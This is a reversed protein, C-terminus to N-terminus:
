RKRQFFLASMMSEQNQTCATECCQLICFLSWEWPWQQNQAWLHEPSNKHSLSRLIKGWISQGSFFQCLHSCPILASNQRIRHGRGWWLWFWFIHQVGGSLRGSASDFELVNAKCKHMLLSLNWCFLLLCINFAPPKGTIVGMFWDCGSFDVLCAM